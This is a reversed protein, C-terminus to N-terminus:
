PSPLVKVRYWRGTSAPVSVELPTAYWPATGGTAVLNTIAHGQPDNALDNIEYLTYSRGGRGIWRVVFGSNTPTPRINDFRFLAAGDCPDTGCQREKLDDMGDGDTDARTPDTEGPDPEGDHDIDEEGDALGDHDTDAMTPDSEGPSLAGDLNFDEMGDPIGDGDTDPNNPLTGRLAETEDPLGDGDTDTRVRLVYAISWPSWAGYADSYRVNFTYNTGVGVWGKPVVYRDAGELAGSRIVEAHNTTWVVFEVAGEADGDPDAFPTAVLLPEPGCPGLPRRIGPQAPAHNVPLSAAGVQTHGAADRVAITVNYRNVGAAGNLPIAARGNQIPLWASWGSPQLRYQIEMPGIVDEAEVRLVMQTTMTVPEGAPGTLAVSRLVPPERDLVVRCTAEPSVYGYADYAIAAFIYEGDVYAKQTGEKGAPLDFMPLVVNTVVTGGALDGYASGSRRERLSVRVVGVNDTSVIRLPVLPNDTYVIGNANSVTVSPPFFDHAPRVVTGTSLNGLRDGYYVVMSDIGYLPLALDPAFARGEMPGGAISWLIWDVSSHADTVDSSLYLLGKAIDVDRVVVSHVVPPVWDLVVSDYYLGDKEHKTPHRYDVCVTHLGPTSWTVTREPFPSVYPEWPETDCVGDTAIRVEGSEISWMSFQINAAGIIPDNTVTSWHGGAYDHRFWGNGGYSTNGQNLAYYRNTATDEAAFLLYYLGPALTIPSFDAYLYHFTDQSLRVDEATGSWERLIGTGAPAADSLAPVIKVHLTGPEGAIQSCWLKVRSVRTTASLRFEQARYLTDTRDGLSLAGAYSGVQCALDGDPPQIHINFPVNTSFWYDQGYALSVMGSMDVTISDQAITSLGAADTVRASVTVPGTAEMRGEVLPWERITANTGSFRQPASWSLGDNSLELLWPGPEPVTLNVTVPAAYQYWSADGNAVTVTFAPPTRDIRFTQRGSVASNKAADKVEVELQYVGEALGGLNWSAQVRDLAGTPAPYATWTGTAVVAGNTTRVQPCYSDPLRLGGDDVARFAYSVVGTCVGGNDPPFLEVSPATRDADLHIRTADVMNSQDFDYYRTIQTERQETSEVSVDVLIQKPAYAPHDFKIIFSGRPPVRSFIFAGRSDTRVEGFRQDGLQVRANTVARTPEDASYVAGGLAQYQLMYMSSRSRFDDTDDAEHHFHFSRPWWDPDKSSAPAAPLYELVYDGTPIFDFRFVGNLGDAPASATTQAGYPGTLRVPIGNAGSDPYDPNTSLRGMVTGRRPLVNIQFTHMNNYLNGDGLGYVPVSNGDRGKYECYGTSLYIEHTGENTFTCFAYQQTVANVGLMMSPAFGRNNLVENQLPGHDVQFHNMWDANTMTAREGFNGVMFRVTTVEGAYARGMGWGNEPNVAIDYVALDPMYPRQNIPMTIAIEPTDSLLGAGDVAKQYMDSNNLEDWTPPTYSGPILNSLRSLVSPTLTFTLPGIVTLSAGITKYISVNYVPDIFFTYTQNDLSYDRLPVNMITTQAHSEGLETFHLLRDGIYVNFYNGEVIVEGALSISGISLNSYDAVKLVGELVKVAESSGPLLEDVPISAFDVYDVGGLLTHGLPLSGNGQINLRFDKTLGTTIKDVWPNRFEVGLEFGYDSYLETIQPDDYPELWVRCPFVNGAWVNTGDFEVVLMAAATFGYPISSARVYGQFESWYPVLTKWGTSKDFNANGNEFSFRVPFEKRITAAAGTLMMALWIIGVQKWVGRCAHM